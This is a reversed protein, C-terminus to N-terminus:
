TSQPMFNMARRLSKEPGPHAPPLHEHAATCGRRPEIRSPPVRGRLSKRDGAMATRLRQITEPQVQVDADMLFLYPQPTERIGINRGPNPGDNRDLARMRVDPYFARLWEATGDTSAGDVVLVRAHPCGAADLSALTTGLAERNNYGVIAVGVDDPFGSTM